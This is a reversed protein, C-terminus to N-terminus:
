VGCEEVTFSCQEEWNSSSARCSFNGGDDYYQLYFTHSGVSLGAIPQEAAFLARVGTGSTTSGLLITPPSVVGDVSVGFKLTQNGSGGFNIFTGAVRVTVSGNAYVSLSISALDSNPWETWAGTTGLAANATARRQVRQRVGYRPLVGVQGNADTPALGNSSGAAAAIDKIAAILANVLASTAYTSATYSATVAKAADAASHTIAGGTPSRSYDVIFDGAGLTAGPARETWTQSSGTLAVTQPLGSGNSSPPADGLDADPTKDVYHTLALDRIEAVFGLTAGGNATRYLRRAAIPADPTGQSAAPLAFKYSTGSGIAGVTYLTGATTEGNATVNTLAWSYAGGSVLGGTESVLAGALPAAPPNIAFAGKPLLQWGSPYAPSLNAGLRHTYPASGPVSYSEVLTGDSDQVVPVLSTSSTPFTM